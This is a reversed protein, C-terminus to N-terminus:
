KQEYYERRLAEARAIEKKPVKWTKKAFGHTVVVIRNATKDWFALLRYQIGGYLTRFEWIDDSGELKCFLESDKVGGAVKVVNYYIKKRAQLPVTLLYDNAESMYVVEFQQKQEMNNRKSPAFIIIQKWVVICKCMKKTNVNIKQM